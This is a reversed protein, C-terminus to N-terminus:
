FLIKLCKCGNQRRRLYNAGLLECIIKGLYLFVIENDVVKGREDIGGYLYMRNELINSTYHKRFSLNCIDVKSWIANLSLEEKGEIKVKDLTIKEFFLDSNRTYRLFEQIHGNLIFGSGFTLISCNNTELFAKSNPAHIPITTWKSLQLDFTLINDQIDLREGFFCLLQDYILVQTYSRNQTVDENSNSQQEQILPQFVPTNTFFVKEM